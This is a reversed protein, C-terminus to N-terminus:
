NSSKALGAEMPLQRNSLYNVGDGFSRGTHLDREPWPLDPASTAYLDAKEIM